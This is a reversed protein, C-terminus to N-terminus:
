RKRGYNPSLTDGNVRWAKRSLWRQQRRAEIEADPDQIQRLKWQATSKCQELLASEAETPIDIVHSDTLSFVPMVYGLAQTKSGQLTTDVESDYADFVLDSDNFSTYFEPQKDNIILLEIGSDDIVTIINANDSSRNNILRIFDDPEKYKMKQYSKSASTLKSVDYNIIILEKLDDEISMHTPFNSDSRPTVTLAQRMHPWNRNSMMAMYKGQIIKAVRTAEPTDDISNVEDGSIDELVDQTMTLLTTM